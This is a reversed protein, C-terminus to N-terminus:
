KLGDEIRADLKKAMALTDLGEPQASMTMVLFAANSRRAMVISWNFGQTSTTFGASGDGIGSYHDDLTIGTGMGSGITEALKAPDKLDTNWRDIDAQALPYFVLSFIMAPRTANQNTFVHFSALKADKFATAFSESVSEQTLNMAALEDTSFEVFGAPVDELMLAAKSVDLTKPAASKGGCASLVLSGLVLVIFLNKSKM